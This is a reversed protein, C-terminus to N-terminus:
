ILFEKPLSNEIFICLAHYIVIHCEQIKHTENVPVPIIVDIENSLYQIAKQSTLAITKMGISRAKIFAQNINKSKGSTTIGLLVSGSEGYAEVERAFQEEFSHDNSWASAVASNTGLTIVILARHERTFFNVLEGAFHQADSHSGGNGCVLISKGNEIALLLLNAASNFVAAFQENNTAELNSISDNIYNKLNM